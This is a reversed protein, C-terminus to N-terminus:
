SGFLHKNRGEWFRGSHVESCGNSHSEKGWPATAWLYCSGASTDSLMCYIVAPCVGNDFAFHITYLQFFVSIPVVKFTGDALWMPAKALGDLLNLCSILILRNDGPGSDFVVIDAFNKSIVFLLYKPIATLPTDGNAADTVKKRHRWLAKSMTARKPLAMLTDDPDFGRGESWSAPARGNLWWARVNRYCCNGKEFQSGSEVHHRWPSCYTTM